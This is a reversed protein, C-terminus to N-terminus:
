LQQAQQTKQGLSDTLSVDNRVPGRTSSTPPVPKQLSTKVVANSAMRVNPVLLLQLLQLKM